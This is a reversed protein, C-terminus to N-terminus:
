LINHWVGPCQSGDYSLDSTSCHIVAWKSETKDFKGDVHASVQPDRSQYLLFLSLDCYVFLASLVGIVAILQRIMLRATNRRPEGILKRGLIIPVKRFVSAHVRLNILVGILWDSRRLLDIRRAIPPIRSPLKDLPSCVDSWPINKLLVSCPKWSIQEHFSTM